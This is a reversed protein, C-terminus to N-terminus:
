SSRDLFCFLKGLALGIAPVCLAGLCEDATRESGAPLPPQCRASPGLHFGGDERLLTREWARPRQAHEASKLLANLTLSVSLWKRAGPM